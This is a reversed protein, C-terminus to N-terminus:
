TPLPKEGMYSKPTSAGAVKASPSSDEPQGPIRILSLTQIFMGDNFKSRVKIVRFCGSFPTKYFQLDQGKTGADQPTRFEVVIVVDGTTYPAEGNETIGKDLLKPEYNGIGGTCLFYPDGLIELECSVMDINDLVAKHMNDVLVDYTSYDRRSANGGDKVIGRLRPDAYRSAPPIISGESIKNDVGEVKGGSRAQKNHSDPDSFLSNGMGQPYAQYFLTNFRLNFKRIDVNQGTYLYDYKRKVYITKLKAIDEETLQKQAFPVRSAHMRYSKVIYAYTYTPRLTIPNWDDKPLVQLSVHFYDIMGDDDIKKEMIKKVVDKGYTSDRIVSVVIDHINSGASFQMNSATPSVPTKAVASESKPNFCDQAITPNAKQVKKNNYDAAAALDANPYYNPENNESVIDADAIERNVNDFDLKGDYTVTPFFIAYDDFYVKETDKGKAQDSEAAAKSSKTLEWMMDDLVKGVKTGEIKVSHKLQNPTGYGMENHAVAQCRYRTGTENMDVEVKTITIVFYRTAQDGVMQPSSNAASLKDPYGMFEMKLVFPTSMYSKHGAAVASVQLAEIFGSISNPEYVEFSVKTAMTLNTKKSFAMLTEVEVNNIFLDFRGPSLDNFADALKKGSAAAQNTDIAPDKKGASKAVVFFESTQRLTQPDRLHSSKIAALTFLYNFSRYNHLINKEGSVIAKPIKNKDKEIQNGVKRVDAQQSKREVNSTDNAM